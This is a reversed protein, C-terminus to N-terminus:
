LCWNEQESTNCFVEGFLHKSHIQNVAIHTAASVVLMPPQTTVLCLILDLLARRFQFLVTIDTGLM